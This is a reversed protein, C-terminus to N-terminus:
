HLANDTCQEKVPVSKSIIILQPKMLQIIHHTCDPEELENERRDPNSEALLEQGVFQEALGGEYVGLINPSTLITDELGSAKLSLGTDLFTLKYFNDKAYYSLPLETNNTGVIRNM